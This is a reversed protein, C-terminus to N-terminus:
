REVSAITPHDITKEVVEADLSDVAIPQVEDVAWPDDANRLVPTADRRLDQVFSVHVARGTPRPASTKVSVPEVEYGHGVRTARERDHRLRSARELDEM